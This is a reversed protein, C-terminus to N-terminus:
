NKSAQNKPNEVALKYKYVKLFLEDNENESITAFYKDNITFENVIEPIRLSYLYDGNESSYYDVAIIKSDRRDSFGVVFFKPDFTYIEASARRVSKDLEFFRGDKIMIKENPKFNYVPIDFILEGNTSFKTIKSKYKSAYLLDGNQDCYISGDFYYAFRENREKIRSFTNLLKGDMDIRHLFGDRGYQFSLSYFWDQDKCVAIRHPQNFKSGTGIEKEFKMNKDYVLYKMKDSDALLIQGKSNSNMDWIELVEGPGRGERLSNSGFSFNSDELSFKYITKAGNDYFVLYGEENLSLSYPYFINLDGFNVEHVLKFNVPKVVRDQAIATNFVIFSLIFVSLTFYKTIIM